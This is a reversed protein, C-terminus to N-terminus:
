KKGYRYFYHTGILATRPFVRSWKPSVGTTHYFTAGGTLRRPFGGLMIKAVKGVMEYAKQEGYVEKRGDCKYSFQCANRKSAGQAIVGCVSNPYRKSDRRNLIVEAVAFQGRADEGRAEFYLAETLCAWESGGSVRPMERLQAKSPIQTVRIASRDAPKPKMISALRPQENPPRIGALQLAYYPDLGSLAKHEHSLLERMEDALIEHDQGAYSVTGAGLALVTVLKLLSQKSFLM